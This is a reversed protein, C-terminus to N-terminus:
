IHKLLEYYALLMNESSNNKPMYVINIQISKSKNYEIIDIIEKILEFNKVQKNSSTKWNNERWKISWVTICNIAYESRSYINMSKNNIFNDLIYKISLLDLKQNTITNDDIVKSCSIKNDTDIHIGIIGRANSTGNNKCSTSLYVSDIDEM